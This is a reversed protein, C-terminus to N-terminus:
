RKRKKNREEKKKRREEERRRLAHREGKQLARSKDGSEKM